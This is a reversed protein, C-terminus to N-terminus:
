NNLINKTANAANIENAQLALNNAIQAQRLAESHINELNMRHQEEEYLNMAEKLDDARGTYFYDKFANLAAPQFYRVPINVGSHMCFAKQCALIEDIYTNKDKELEELRQLKKTIDLNFKKNKSKAYFYYIITGIGYSLPFLVVMMVKQMTTLRERYALQGKEIEAIEYCTAEYEHYLDCTASFLEDYEGDNFIQVITKGESM